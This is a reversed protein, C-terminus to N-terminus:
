ALPQPDEDASVAAQTSALALLEDLRDRVLHLERLLSELETTSARGRRQLVFANNIASQLTGALRHGLAQLVRAADRPRTM